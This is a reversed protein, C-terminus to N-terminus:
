VLCASAQEVVVEEFVHRRATGSMNKCRWLKCEDGIPRVLCSTGEAPKGSVLLFRLVKTAPEAGGSNAQDFVAAPAITLRLLLPTKGKDISETPIKALPETIASNELAQPICLRPTGTEVPLSKRQSSPVSVDLYIPDAGDVVDAKGSNRGCVLRVPLARQGHHQSHRQGGRGSLAACDDQALGSSKGVAPATADLQGRRQYRYRHRQGRDDVREEPFRAALEATAM